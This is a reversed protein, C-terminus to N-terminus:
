GGMYDINNRDFVLCILGLQFFVINIVGQVSFHMCHECLGLVASFQCPSAFVCFFNYGPYLMM